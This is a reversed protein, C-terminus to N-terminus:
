GTLAIRLDGALLLVAWLTHLKKIRILHLVTASASHKEAVPISVLEQVARRPGDAHSVHCSAVQVPDILTPGHKGHAWHQEAGAAEKRGKM